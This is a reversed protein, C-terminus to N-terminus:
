KLVKWKEIQFDYAIHHHRYWPFFNMKRILKKQFSKNLFFLRLLSARFKLLKPLDSKFKKHLERAEALYHDNTNGGGRRIDHYRFGGLITNVYYLQTYKFFRLWLNFDEAYKVTIDLQGGAQEWLARRWFISEQQIWRYDGSIVDYINREKAPVIRQPANGISLNTPMGSVWQIENLSEFIEAVFRLTWPYYLDSSNIWGMIEGTAMTFGKNIADYQGKDKESVWYTIKDSYKKIIEVSGDTSGGDIVIYELNPYGQDIVSKITQELYEAQNYSPTVISIKPSNM